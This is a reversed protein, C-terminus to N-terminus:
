KKGKTFKILCFHTFFLAIPLSMVFFILGFFSAFLPGGLDDGRAVPDGIPHLWNYIEYSILTATTAAVLTLILSIGVVLFYHAINKM